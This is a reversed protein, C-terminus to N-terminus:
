AANEQESRIRALEAPVDDLGYAPALSRLATEQSLHGSSRLTALTAADQARDAATDPYWRPWALTLSADPDLPPM